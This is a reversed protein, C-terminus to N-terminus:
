RKRRSSAPRYRRATKPVAKANLLAALAMRSGVGMKEFIHEVHKQVTRPSVGLIIAIEANTKGQCVWGAVESQRRSLGFDGTSAPLLPPANERTLVLLRREPSSTPVTRIHIEGADSALNLIRRSRNPAPQNLWNSINASLIGPSTAGIWQLGPGTHYLIRHQSDVIITASSLEHLALAAADLITRSESALALNNFAVVLHPRLMELLARDRETYDNQRSALAFATIHDPGLRITTAIQYEVGLPRYVEQYLELRHFAEQTLFDSIKHVPFNPTELQRIVLPNQHLLEQFRAFVPPFRPDGEPRLIAQTNAPNALDVENYSYWDSPVLKPLATELLWLLLASLDRISHLELVCDLFMEYDNKVLLSM